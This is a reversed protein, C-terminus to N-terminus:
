AKTINVVFSKTKKDGYERKIGTTVNKCLIKPNLRIKISKECIIKEDYYAIKLSNKEKRVGM